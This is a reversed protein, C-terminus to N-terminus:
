KLKNKKNQEARWAIQAYFSLWEPMQEGVKPKLKQYSSVTHKKTM